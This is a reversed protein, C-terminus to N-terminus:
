ATPGLSMWNVGTNLKKLKLEFGRGCPTFTSQETDIEHALQVNVTQDDNEPLTM